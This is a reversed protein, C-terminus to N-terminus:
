SCIRDTEAIPYASSAVGITQEVCKVSCEGLGDNKLKLLLGNNPTAGTLWEEALRGLGESELNWWGAQPGRNNTLVYTGPDSNDGGQKSWKNTGDYTLWNVNSTWAKTAKSISLGTRSLETSKVEEPAFVGINAKTVYAKAPVASLDFRLLSRAWESKAEAGVQHVYNLLEKQGSPACAGWGTQGSMGGYTCDLSITKITLSPDLVVPWKRGPQELWEHNIKVTLLWHDGVPELEYSAADEPRAALASDQVTPAPLAVVGNGKEDRFEISGNALLEPTLGNAAELRFHFTTPQSPDAIEVSEKVGNALSSFEFNTEGNASEYSATGGELQVPEPSAALLESAVWRGDESLRVSGEDLHEPLSVDFSNAGNTLQGSPLEEFGNEIPKWDGASDKYNVPSTYIRTELQEDPLLFTQSTATRKAALEIGESPEPAASLAAADPENAADEQEALAVGSGVVLLMLLMFGILRFVKM